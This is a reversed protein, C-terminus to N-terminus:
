ATTACRGDAAAAALLPWVADAALPRAFLYGQGVEAGRDRLHRLQREEEIGEAVVVLGLAHTMGLVADVIASDHGATGLGVVFSRDIKITDLPFRKLYSLSSYGTGFDDLILRVGLAKLASLMALPADGTELLM